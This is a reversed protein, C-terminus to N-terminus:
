VERENAKHQTRLCGGKSICRCRICMPKEKKDPKRTQNVCMKNLVDTTAEFDPHINDWKSCIHTEDSNDAFRGIVADISERRNGLIERLGLSGDGVSYVNGETMSKMIESEKADYTKNILLDM